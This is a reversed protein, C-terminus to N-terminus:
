DRCGTFTSKGPLLSKASPIFTLFRSMPLNDQILWNLVIYNSNGPAEMTFFGGAFTPAAPKIGPDPLHGPPPSPLGRWHEGPYDWPCLLRAPQMPQLSKSVVSPHLTCAHLTYHFLGQLHSAPPDSHTPLLCSLLFLISSIHLTPAISQFSFLVPFMEESAGLFVESIDGRFGRSPAFCQRCGSKRNRVEM